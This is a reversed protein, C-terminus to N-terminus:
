ECCLRVLANWLWEEASSVECLNTSRPCPRGLRVLDDRNPESGELEERYIVIRNPVLFSSCM